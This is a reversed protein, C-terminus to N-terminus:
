KVGWSRQFQPAPTAFLLPVQVCVHMDATYIASYLFAYREFRADTTTAIQNANKELKTRDTGKKNSYGQFFPVETQGRLTYRRTITSYITFLQLRNLQNLDLKKVRLNKKQNQQLWVNPFRILRTKYVFYVSNEERGWMCIENQKPRMWKCAPFFHLALSFANEMGFNM